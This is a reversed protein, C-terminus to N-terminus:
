YNFCSFVVTIFLIASPCISIMYFFNISLVLLFLAVSYVFALKVANFIGSSNIKNVLSIYIDNENSANSVVSYKLESSNIM